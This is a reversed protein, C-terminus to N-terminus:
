SFFKCKAGNQREIKTAPEYNKLGLSGSKSGLVGSKLPWKARKPWTKLTEYLNQKYWQVANKNM